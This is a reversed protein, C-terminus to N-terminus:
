TETTKWAIRQGKHLIGAKDLGQMVSRARSAVVLASDAAIAHTLTHMLGEWTEALLMAFVDDVLIVRPQRSLALALSLRVRATGSLTKVQQSPDLGGLGVQQLHVEVEAQATQRHMAMLKGVSAWPELATYPNALLLTVFSRQKGLWWRPKRTVDTPGWFLRGRTPRELRALTRLLSTKGSGSAGRLGVRDGPHLVLDIGQEGPEGTCLAEAHLLPTSENM